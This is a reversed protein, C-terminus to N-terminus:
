MARPSNLAKGQYRGALITASGTALDTRTIRRGGFDAGEALVMRDLDFIIGNSVGSPSRFVRARM